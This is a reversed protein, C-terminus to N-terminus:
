EVRVGKAVLYPAIPEPRTHKVRLTDQRVLMVPLAQFVSVHSPAQREARM